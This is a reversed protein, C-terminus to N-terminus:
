SADVQIQFSPEDYSQCGGIYSSEGTYRHDGSDTWTGSHDSCAEQTVYPTTCTSDAWTGSGLTPSTCNAENSYDCYGMQNGSCWNWNDIIVIKPKFLCYTSGDNNPDYRPSDVSCNYAHTFMHTVPAADWNQYKESGDGFDIYIHVLPQQETDVNSTFSLTVTQGRGIAYIDDDYNTKTDISISDLSPWVGCYEDDGFDTPRSNDPCQSMNDFLNNGAGDEWYSQGEISDYVSSVKDTPNFKYFPATNDLGAFIHKLRSAGSVAAQSIQEDMSAVTSQGENSITSDGIGMCIGNGDNCGDNSTCSDGVSVADGVCYRESCDGICSLPHGATTFAGGSATSNDTSMAVAPEKGFTNGVMASGDLVDSDTYDTLLYDWISPAGEQPAIAGYPTYPTDSDNTYPNDTGHDIEYSSGMSRVAWAFDNGTSDVPNVVLPCSERVQISLHMMNEFTTEVGSEVGLFPTDRTSNAAFWVMVYLAQIYGQDNFDVYLSMLNGGDNGGRDDSPFGSWSDTIDTTDFAWTGPSLDYDINKKYIGTTPDDWLAPELHVWPNRSSGPNPDGAIAKLSSDVCNTKFLKSFGDTTSLNAKITDYRSEPYDSNAAMDCADSGNNTTNDFNGYIWTYVLDLGGHGTSTSSDADSFDPLSNDAYNSWMDNDGSMSDWLGWVKCGFGAPEGAGISNRVDVSVCNDNPVLNKDADYKVAGTYLDTLWINGLDDKVDTGTSSPKDYQTGVGDEISSQGWFPFESWTGFGSEASAGNGASGPNFEIQEMETYNINRLLENAPLRAIIGQDLGYGSTTGMTPDVMQWKMPRTFYGRDTQAASVAACTATNDGFVFSCASNEYGGSCNFEACDYATGTSTECEADNICTRMSRIENGDAHDVDYSCYGTGPLDEGYTTDYGYYQECKGSFLAHSDSLIDITSKWTYSADACATEDLSDDELCYSASPWDNCSTSIDPTGDEDGDVTCYGGGATTSEKYGYTTQFDGEHADINHEIVGGSTTDPLIYDAGQFCTDTGYYSLSSTHPTCDDDNNCLVGQGWNGSWTYGDSECDSAIQTGTVTGTSDTCYGGYAHANYRTKPSASAIGENDWDEVDCFGPHALGKSVLCSYVASRGSYGAATRQVISQEGAITDLPWWMICRNADTPDSELCYGKWGMFVAGSPESYNCQTSSSEPFARCSRAILDSDKSTELVPMLSVNDLQFADGGVGLFELATSVTGPATEGLNKDPDKNEITIPGLTYTKMQNDFQFIDVMGLITSFLDDIITTSDSWNEYVPFTGSGSGDDYAFSYAAGGTAATLDDYQAKCNPYTYTTAGFGSGSTVSGGRACTEQDTTIVFVGLNASVAATQATGADIENDPSLIEDATDTVVIIFKNAGDRFNLTADSPHTASQSFSNVATDQIAAYPDIKANDTTMGSITNPDTADGTIDDISSTFNQRIWEGGTGYSAAGSGTGDHNDNLEVLAFKADIGAESLQTALDPVALKMATIADGMSTSTDLAFVIDAQGFGTTFCDKKIVGAGDSDQIGSTNLCISVTAPTGGSTNFEDVSAFDDVYRGDFSLTYTGDQIINDQLDYQAGNTFADGSDAQVQLVNNLDIASCGGNSTDCNYPSLKAIITSSPQAAGASAVPTTSTVGFPQYQTVFIQSSGAGTWGYATYSYGNLTNGDTQGFPWYIGFNPSNPCFAIDSDTSADFGAGVQPTADDSFVLSESPIATGSAVSADVKAQLANTFCNGLGASSANSVCSQTVDGGVGACYLNEFNNIEILDKDAVAGYEGVETMWGYPYFGETTFPITCTGVDDGYCDSDETCTQTSDNSCILDSTCTISSNTCDTPTTCPKGDNSGGDCLLVDDWTVGVKTYGTFNQIARLQDTDGIASTYHLDTTSNLDEYAPQEVWNSCNGNSSLQNCRNIEFCQSTTNGSADTVLEATLCALWESCIRDQTVQLVTNTDCAKLISRCSDSNPTKLCTTCDEGSQSYNQADSTTDRFAVCAGDSTIAATGEQNLCTDTGDFQERETTGDVTYDLYYYKDNEKFSINDFYITSTSDNELFVRVYAPSTTWTSGAEGCQQAASKMDYTVGNGCTGFDPVPVTSGLGIDGEFRYWPSLSDADATDGSAITLHDAVLYQTATSVIGAEIASSDTNDKFFQLGISFQAGAGDGTELDTEAMKVQAQITYTKNPELTTYGGVPSNEIACQSGLALASAGEQAVVSAGSYLPSLPYLSSVTIMAKSTDCSSGFDVVGDNNIDIETYSEGGESDTVPTANYPISWYDPFGDPVSGDSYYAGYGSDRVDYEFSANQNIETINPSYPDVYESCGSDNGPCIGTWGIDSVYDTLTVDDNFDVYDVYQHVNGDHVDVDDALNSICRPQPDGSAWGTPYCQTDATCPTGVRNDVYTDDWTGSDAACATSSIDLINGSGDSCAGDSVKISNSNCVGDLPQSAYHLGYSSYDHQIPCDPTTATTGQKFWGSYTVGGDSYEKLECLRNGPDKFYVTGDFDSTYAQCSLQPQQCLISNYSDPTNLLYTPTFDTVTGTAEDVSPLGVESCGMYQSSCQNDENYVVTVPQDYPVIEDDQDYENDMNYAETFPNSSNQTAILAECGVASDDCLRQFSKLYHTDKASDTYALCGEFGNCTNASDQILYQSDSQTLTITDIYAASDTADGTFQLTFTEDGQSVEESSPLVLPGVQYYQWGGEGNPDLTIPTTADTASTSFGSTTFYYNSGTTTTSFDLGALISGADVAKAWFSLVYSDGPTLLGVTEYVGDGDTDVTGYLNYSIVANTAASASTTDTDQLQLSYGSQLSSENSTSTAGAWDTTTNDDFNAGIITEDSGSNTGKYERCGADVASCSTSDGPVAYYVRTDLSNRLPTCDESAVIVQSEYRYFITGAANIYQRCDADTGYILDTSTTDTSNLLTTDDVIGDGNTDADGDVDGTPGCDWTLQEATSYDTRDTCDANYDQSELDLHTCPADTTSGQDVKLTHDYIQVGATDSGEFTYYVATNLDDTKVCQQLQTYYNLGEGGAEVEALNTYEECGVASISCQTGSNPVISLQQICQVSLDTNCDVDTVCHTSSDSECYGGMRNIVGPRETTPNLWSEDTTIPTTNDMAVEQYFGCGAYYDVAQGTAVNGDCQNCSPNSYDYNGNVDVCVASDPNTILGPIGQSDKAGDPTYLRCGVDEPECSVTDSNLYTVNNDAYNDYTDSFSDAEVLSAADINVDCNATPLISVKIKTGVSADDSFTYTTTYDQWTTDYAYDIDDGDATVIDSVQTGDDNGITFSVDTLADGCDTGLTQAQYAFTFTRNELSHGTDVTMDLTGGTTTGAAALQIYNTGLQPTISPSFSSDLVYATTNNQIWGQCTGEITTSDGDRECSTDDFCGQGDNSCFALYDRDTVPDLVGDEGHSDDIVNHDQDFYDFFANPILNTDPLMRIYQTCGANSSECSKVNSDFYLTNDTVQPAEAVTGLICTSGNSTTCTMSGTSVSCSDSLTCTSSSTDFDTDSGDTCTNGLNNVCSGGSSTVTCVDGCNMEVLSTDVTCVPATSYTSYSSDCSAASGDTNADLICTETGPTGDQQTVTIDCSAAGDAADCSTSVTCTCTETDSNYTSNNAGCNDALTCVSTSTEAGTSDTNSVLCQTYDFLGNGDSDGSTSGANVQCTQEATCACAVNPEYAISGDTLGYDPENDAVDESCSIYTSTPSACNFDGADNQTLCYWQCGPDTACDNYNVSNKIYSVDNGDPDTFTQCSSLDESCVTGDFRYIRSEDTCYGYATCTGAQDEQICGRNDACYNLRSIDVTSQTNSNTDTDTTTVNALDAGPAERECFNQPAKLVWTSDILKCFPSYTSADGGNYDILFACSGAQDTGGCADYCDILQQLTPANSSDASYFHNIYDAAVQWGVPVIRYKKLLIIGKPTVGGDATIQDGTLTSDSFRFSSGGSFSDIFEQITAGDTIAQQLQQGIACNDTTQLATDSPCASLNSLIDFVGTSSFNPQKLTAFIEAAAARGTAVGSSSGSLLGSLASSNGLNALGEQARAMLKSILTSSFVNLADLFPQGVTTTLASNVTAKAAAQDSAIALGPTEITKSVPTTKDKFASLTRQALSEQIAEAKASITLNEAEMSIGLPNATPDFQLAVFNSFNPDSYADKWNGALKTLTCAPTYVSANGLLSSTDLGITLNIKFDSGPDCLGAADLGASNAFGEIAGGAAADGASLLEEGISKDYVFSGQGTAGSALFVASDYALKSLFASLANHVAAGAAKLLVQGITDKTEKATLFAVVDPAQAQAAMPLVSQSVILLACAVVSLKTLWRKM